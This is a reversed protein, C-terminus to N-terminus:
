QYAAVVVSGEPSSVSKGVAGDLLKPLKALLALKRQWFIFPVLGQQNFSQLSAIVIRSELQETVQSSLQAYPDVLEVEEVEAVATVLGRRDEEEWDLRGNRFHASKQTLFSKGNKVVRHRQGQRDVARAEYAVKLSAQSCRFGVARLDPM